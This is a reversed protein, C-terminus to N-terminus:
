GMPDLGGLNTLGGVGDLMEFAELDLDAVWGRVVLQDLGQGFVVTGYREVYPRGRGPYGAHGDHM